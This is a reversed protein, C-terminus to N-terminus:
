FLCIKIKKIGPSTKFYNAGMADNIENQEMNKNKPTKKKLIKQFTLYRVLEAKTGSEALNRNRAEVKLGEKKLRMLKKELDGSDAM